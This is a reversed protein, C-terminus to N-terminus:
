IFPVSHRQAEPRTLTLYINAEIRRLHTRARIKEDASRHIALRLESLTVEWSHSECVALMWMAGLIRGHANKTGWRRLSDRYSLISRSNHREGHRPEQSIRAGMPALRVEFALGPNPGREMM